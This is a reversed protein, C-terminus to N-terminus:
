SNKVTTFDKLLTGHLDPTVGLLSFSIKINKILILIINKVTSYKYWGTLMLKSIDHDKKLMVQVCVSAYMQRGLHSISHGGNPSNALISNYETDYIVYTNCAM